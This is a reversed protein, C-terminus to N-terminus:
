GEGGGCPVQCVASLQAVASSKKECNSRMNEVQGRRAASHLREAEGATSGSTGEGGGREVCNM